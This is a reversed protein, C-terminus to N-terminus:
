DEWEIRSLDMAVHSHKRDPHGLVQDCPVSILQQQADRYEIVSPCLHIDQEETPLTEESGYGKVGENYDM